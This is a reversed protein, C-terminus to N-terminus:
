STRFTTCRTSRPDTDALPAPREVCGDPDDEAWTALTLLLEEIRWLAAVLEDDLDSILRTVSSATAPDPRQQPQETM